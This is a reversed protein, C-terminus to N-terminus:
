EKGENNNIVCVPNPLKYARYLMFTIVACVLYVLFYLWSFPLSFDFRYAADFSYNYVWVLLAFLLYFPTVTFLSPKYVSQLGVFSHSVFTYLPSVLAFLFFSLWCHDQWLEIGLVGLAPLFFVGVLKGLTLVLEFGSLGCRSKM